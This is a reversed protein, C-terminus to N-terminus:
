PDSLESPKTEFSVLRSGQVTLQGELGESFQEFQNKKLQFRRSEGGTLPTFEVFYRYSDPMSDRSKGVPKITQRQHSTVRVDLRHLPQQKDWRRQQIHRWAQYLGLGVIIAMGAAWWWPM